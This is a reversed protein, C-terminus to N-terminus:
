DVITFIQDFITKYNYNKSVKIRGSKAIQKRENEHSLYYDIKNLLDNISEFYVFDENPTFHQLLDAQFNTLLFGGSAMIEMCRLPIGSRISRLTFNLNIKSNHFIYPTESLYDAPGMNQCLGVSINPDSTFLKLYFQKSILTLYEIRENSTLKRSLFYDSIIYSLPEVGDINKKYHTAEQLQRLISPTLCEQMFNYGYVQSQAKLIGDLFGKTYDSLNKLNDYLNHEENYLSGVFSVDASLRKQNYSKSLLMTIKNADVPLPMYYFTTIGEQQFQHVLESDFLFIYNTPYTVTYSYLKVQPSDYVFAIYKLNHSYCATALLPFYNYSFCLDFSNISLLEDIKKMFSDSIRLDYDPHSFLTVNHNEKKFYDLVDNRGFCPWDLFLINM